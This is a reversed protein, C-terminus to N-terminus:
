RPKAFVQTWYPGNSSAVGVGIETFTCNLINARHGPSNMWAQMVAAPSQQNWAVNEGYTQWVYGVRDIRQGPDSGDSGTHSMNRNDAQDQSHRQAATMLKDDISLAGCGAKAREENVLEVVQTTQATASGVPAPPTTVTAGRSPNGRREAAQQSPTSSSRAPTTPSPRATRSPKPSPTASPSLSPSPSPSALPDLTDVPEEPEALAPGTAVPRDEATTGTPAKEGPLALAAVGISVVLTAAAAAGGLVLPRSRRRHAPRPEAETMQTGIEAPQAGAEAPRTDARHPQAPDPQTGSYRWSDAYGQDPQWGAQDYRGAQYPEPAIYPEPVTYPEPTTYGDPAAHRAPQPPTDAWGGIQTTPEEVRWGGDHNSPATSGYPGETAPWATDRYHRGHDAGHEHDHGQSHTPEASWHPSQWQETPQHHDWRDSPSDPEDGFLYSSRPAPRDTLWAPDDNPPESRRTGDPDLPDNWGHVGTAEM